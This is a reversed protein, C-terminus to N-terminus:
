AQPADDDDPKPPRPNQELYTFVLWGALAGVAVGIVIAVAIM